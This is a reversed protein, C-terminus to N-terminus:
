VQFEFAPTTFLEMIFGRSRGDLGQQGKPCQGLAQTGKKPGIFGGGGQYGCESMDPNGGYYRTLTACCLLRFSEFYGM